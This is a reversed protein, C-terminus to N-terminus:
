FLIEGWVERKDQMGREQGLHNISIDFGERGGWLCAMAVLVRKGFGLFIIRIEKRGQFWGKPFYRVKRTQCYIM